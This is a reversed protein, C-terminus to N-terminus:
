RMAKSREDVFTALDTVHQASQAWDGGDKWSERKWIPVTAKLADIGFRAADFAEPRHPASVVVLVSSEGLGLFGVRHILAIRGVTNWRQRIEAAVDALKQVVVEDYAEYSLGEVGDRGESHDRATGSFVVVAGCSPLVSWAYAAGVDLVEETLELWTDGSDVFQCSTVQEAYGLHDVVSILAKCSTNSDIASEESSGDPSIGKRAGSGICSRWHRWGLSTPADTGTEDSARDVARLIAISTADVLTTNDNTKIARTNGERGSGLEGM